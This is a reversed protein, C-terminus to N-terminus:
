LRVGLAKYFSISFGLRANIANLLNEQLLLEELYAELYQTKEILGVKFRENFDKTKLILTSKEEELYKIQADTAKVGSLSTEIETFANILAKEYGYLAQKETSKAVNKQAILAGFDILPVTFGPLINWNLSQPKFMLNPFNTLVGYASTISFQPFFDRYAKQLTAQNAFLTYRAAGVDPRNLVVSSPIEPYILPITADIPNFEKLSEVESKPFQGTLQTILFILKDIDSQVKEYLSQKDQLRALNLLANTQDILGAEFRVQSLEQIEKLVAIEKEYNLKVAQFNRLNAYQLIIESVLSLKIYEAQESQSMMSFFASRKAAQQAGFLDIEWTTDFGLAYQTQFITGTFKSYTLTQTDRERRISGFGSIQPFLQSTQFNYQARLEQIKEKASLYDYNQAEVLSVLRNLMPDNLLEWFKPNFAKENMEANDNLFSIPLNVDPAHYGGRCGALFIFLVTWRKM